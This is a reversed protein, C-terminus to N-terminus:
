KGKLEEVFDDLLKQLETRGEKKVADAVRKRAPVDCQDATITTSAAAGSFDDATFEDMNLHGKADALFKGSPVERATATWDADASLDFMLIKRGKRISSSAEGTIRVNFFRLSSMVPRESAETTAVSGGVLEQPSVDLSPLFLEATELKGRLLNVAVPTLNKEEWHYSNVNWVSGKEVNQQEPIRQPNQTQRQQLERLKRQEDKLKEDQAIQKKLETTETKASCAINDEQVARAKAGEVAAKEASLLADSFQGLVNRVAASGSSSVFDALCEDIPSSPNPSFRIELDDITEPSFDPISMSCQYSSHGAAANATISANISVEFTVIPKGKRVSLAAEGTVHTSDWSITGKGEDTIKLSNLASTLHEVAWKSYNKEERFFVIAYVWWHYM